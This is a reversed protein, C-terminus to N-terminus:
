EVILTSNIAENSHIYEYGNIKSNIDKYIFLSNYQGILKYGGEAVEKSFWKQIERQGLPEGGNFFTEHVEFCNPIDCWIVIDPKNNELLIAEELAYKKSCVDYFPVPVFTSLNSNECLVNFIEIHPYGYIVSNENTNSKIVKYMEEYMMKTDYNVKFGKLAPININYSDSNSLSGNFWGWWGYANTIKQSICTVCLLTCLLPVVVKKINKNSLIKEYIIVACLPFLFVNSRNNFNSLGCGMFQAYAIIFAGAFAFLTILKNKNPKIRYNNILYVFYVIGGLGIVYPLQEILRFASSNDYIYNALDPSFILVSISFTMLIFTFSIDNLKNFIEFRKFLSLFYYIFPLIMILLFKKSVLLINIISNLESNFVFFLFVLIYVNILLFCLKKETCIRDILILIIFYLFVTGVIFINHNTFLRTPASLITVLSGKSSADFIVQEFFPILMGNLGMIAFSIFIPTFTGCMTVFVSKFYSKKEHIFFMITLIIFSISLSSIFITQKLLFTFGIIIGTLFLYLYQKKNDKENIIEVYKIMTSMLFLTILECTQNYDGLLDFVTAATLIIGFFSALAAISPKTIKCLLRYLYLVITIREVIRWFRYLLISNFSLKWIVADIILNLPPLYYYFDKYPLKGDFLLNSYSLGWGDTYPIVRNWYISFYFVTICFLIFGYLIEKKIKRNIVM